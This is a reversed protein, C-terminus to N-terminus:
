KQRTEGNSLVVFHHEFSLDQNHPLAGVSVDYGPMSDTTRVIKRLTM